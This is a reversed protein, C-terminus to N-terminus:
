ELILHHIHHNHPHHLHLSSSSSYRRIYREEEAKFTIVHYKTKEYSVRCPINENLGFRTYMLERFGKLSKQSKNQAEEACSRYAKSFRYNNNRLITAVGLNRYSIIFAKPIDHFTNDNVVLRTKGSQNMVGYFSTDFNCNRVEIQLNVKGQQQQQDDDKAKPEEQQLNVRGPTVPSRIGADYKEADIPDKSFVDTEGGLHAEDVSIGISCNRLVCDDIELTNVIDKLENTIKIGIRLGILENCSLATKENETLMIGTGVLWTRSEDDSSEIRNTTVNATSVSHVSIATEWSTENHLQFLNNKIVTKGGTQCFAICPMDPFLSNLRIHCGRLYSEMTSEHHVLLKVGYQVELMLTNLVSVTGSRKELGHTTIFQGLAIVVCCDVYVNGREGILTIFARNAQVRTYDGRITCHLLHFSPPPIKPPSGPPKGCIAIADDYSSQIICDSFTVIGETVLFGYSLTPDCGVGGLVLTLRQFLVSHVEKKFFSGMIVCKAADCGVIILEKSLITHSLPEVRKGKPDRNLNHVGAYLYITDGHKAVKLASPLDPVVLRKGPLVAAKTRQLDVIIKATEEDEWIDKADELKEFKDLEPIDVSDEYFRVKKTFIDERTSFMTPDFSVAPALNHYNDIIQNIGSVLRKYGHIKTESEVFVNMLQRYRSHYMAAFSAEGAEQGPTTGGHFSSTMWATLELALNAARSFRNAQVLCECLQTM